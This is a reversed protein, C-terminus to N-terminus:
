SLIQLKGTSAFKQNYPVFSILIRLRATQDYEVITSERQRSNWPVRQFVELYGDRSEDSNCFQPFIIRVVM